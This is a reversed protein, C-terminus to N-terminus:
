RALAIRRALRIRDCTRTVKPAVAIGWPGAGVKIRAIEKRASVDIVSVDDSAGNASYLITADPSLAIGWPRQGVPISAVHSQSALDVVAISNGRGTSVFLTRGDPTVVGCMPLMGTGNIPIAPLESHASADIVAISSKVELPVFARAGDPSFAITRPRGGPTFRALEKGSTADLIFVEGREECTIYVENRTPHLAVGEPEDSVRTRFINKGSELDWCSATAEDENSVFIRGGDRSIAFQEPDSGVSIKKELRLSALNLLGIGDASKDPKASAARERDAGPGLRPSGSLAILVRTGDRSLQIGRPRKGVPITSILARTDGDIVSVDGSRENSVFLRHPAGLVLTAGWWFAWSLLVASTRLATM